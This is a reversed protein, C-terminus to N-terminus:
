RGCSPWSTRRGRAGGQGGGEAADDGGAEGARGAGREKDAGGVAGGKGVLGDECVVGVAHQVADEPPADRRVHQLVHPAGGEVIAAQRAQGDRLNRAQHAM